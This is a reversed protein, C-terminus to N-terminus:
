NELLNFEARRNKEHDGPIAPREKGFSITSIRSGEVGATSLYDKVSQARREGLALNYQPAGREDCHGAVQLSIAPNKEMYNALKQLKKRADESLKDDDYAFYVVEPVFVEGRAEKSPEENEEDIIPPAAPIEAAESLVVPEESQESKTSTCSLALMGLGLIM